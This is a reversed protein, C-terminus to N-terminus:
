VLIDECTHIYPFIKQEMPANLEVKMEMVWYRFKDMRAGLYHLVVLIRTPIEVFNKVKERELTKIQLFDVKFKQDMKNHKKIVSPSRFQCIKPMWRASKGM